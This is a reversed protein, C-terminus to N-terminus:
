SSVKSPKTHFYMSSVSVCFFIWIQIITGSCIYASGSVNSIGLDIPDLNANDFTEPDAYM